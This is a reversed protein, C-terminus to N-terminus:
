SVTYAYPLAVLQSGSLFQTSDVFDDVYLMGRVVAGRPAGPKVTLTITRAQGPSVQFLNYSAHAALPAVAFKWFDGNAPSASTDFRQTVASMSASVTAHGAGGVESPVASWLGQSVPTVEKAPPYAALASLGSPTQRAPSGHFSKFAFTVPLPASAAAAVAHTMTPVIWEPPNATAALPLRVSAVRDQPQLRYSGLRTLRPDLFIDEPAAGTNRVAIRYTLAKGQRLKVSPSDPLRGRSFSVANLRIRGTFPDAAQKGGPPSPFGVVLTWTGPIPNSAYASLKRQPSETPVGRLNFGTTLYSSGYGMTEGGPAILYASVQKAPNHALTLDVDINRLLVPLNGPVVISYAAARGGSTLAGSFKADKGRALRIQGRAMVPVSLPVGTAPGTAFVVSGSAATGTASGATAPGAGAWAGALALAAGTGASALARAAGKSIFLRVRTVATEEGDRLAIFRM